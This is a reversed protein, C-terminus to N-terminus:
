DSLHLLQKGLNRGSFLGILLSPAADLHGHAIDQMYVIKGQRIYPLVFDLYDEYLHIYDNVNFGKLTIRKLVVQMLTKVGELEEVGVNYQSIMGCAAIRGHDRMNVLVADLTKGGVNDFYIGIGQPFYRKLTAELEGGEEKYNFAEDFGLKEKLLDVKEKSGASGVVYCGSLKAFQGVLQGVAGSAASIFVKEGKKPHCIEYFGVYASLGAMGLIGAYYSLPVDTHRIKILSEPRDILSYEEWRTFGWVLDGEKLEPHGSDLVKSVGYGSLPSAPTYNPYQLILQKNHMLLRQVPDCSLYLNKVLVGTHGHPLKLKITAESTVHMDDEKPFRDVVYNKLIVQKNRVEAMSEKEKSEDRLHNVTIAFVIIICLIHKSLREDKYVIMVYMCM